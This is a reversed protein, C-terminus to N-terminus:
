CAIASSILFPHNAMAFAEPRPWVVSDTSVLAPVGVSMRLSTVFQCIAVGRPTCSVVPTSLDAFSRSRRSASM